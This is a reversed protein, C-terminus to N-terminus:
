FVSFWEDYQSHLSLPMTTHRTVLVSLSFSHPTHRHRKQHKAGVPDGPPRHTPAQLISLTVAALRSWDRKSARDLGTWDRHADRTGRRQKCPLARQTRTWSRPLYAESRVRYLMVPRNRDSWSRVSPRPVCRPGGSHIGDSSSGKVRPVALRTSALGCTCRHSQHYLLSLDPPEPDTSASAFLPTAMLSGRPDPDPPDFTSTSQDLPPLPTEEGCRVKNNM